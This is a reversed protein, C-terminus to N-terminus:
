SAVDSRLADTVFEACNQCCAVSEIARLPTCERHVECGFVKLEVHGQCTPCIERRLETGRYRCAERSRPQTELASRLRGEEGLAFWDARRRCMEWQFETKSCRHRPCWGPSQCDCGTIKM